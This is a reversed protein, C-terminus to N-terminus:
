LTMHLPYNKLQPEKAKPDEEPPAPPPQVEPPAVMAALSLSSQPDAGASRSCESGVSAFAPALAGNGLSENTEIIEVVPEERFSAFTSNSMRGEIGPLHSESVRSNDENSSRMSTMTGAVSHSQNVMMSGHKAVRFEEFQTQLASGVEEEMISLLGKFLPRAKEVKKCTTFSFSQPFVREKQAIIKKFFELTGQDMTDSNWKLSHIVYSYLGLFPVVLRQRDCMDMNEHKMRCCTLDGEFVYIAEDILADYDVLPTLGMETAVYMASVGKSLAHSLVEARCWARRKYTELSCEAGARDTSWGTAGNLSGQASMQEWGQHVSTPAVIIFASVKSAYVPLSVIALTQIASCRQPISCFDCWIYTKNLSWSRDHVLKRISRCSCNYQVNKPDPSTYGLWQHSLFIINMDELFADVDGCCDLFKLKVDTRDRLAENCVM